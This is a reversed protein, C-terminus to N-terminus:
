TPPTPLSTPACFSRLRVLRVNVNFIRTSVIAKSHSLEVGRQFLERARRWSTQTPDRSYAALKGLINVADPEDKAAAKEFWVLAQKKDPSDIGRGELFMVGLRQQCTVDGGEAGTKYAALARPYDVAVGQGWYYISGIFEAAKVHGQTSPATCVLSRPLLFPM